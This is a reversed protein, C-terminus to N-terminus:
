GGTLVPTMLAQIPALLFGYQPFHLLGGLVQYLQDAKVTAMILLAAILFGNSLTGRFPRLALIAAFILAQFLTVVNVVQRLPIAFDPSDM